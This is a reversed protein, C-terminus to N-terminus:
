RDEESQVTDSFFPFRAWGSFLPGIGAAEILRLSMEPEAEFWGLSDAREDAFAADWHDHVTQM